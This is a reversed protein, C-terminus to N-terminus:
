VHARGIELPRQREVRPTITILPVAHRAGAERGLKCAVALLRQDLDMGVVARPEAQGIAAERADLGRLAVAEIADGEVRALAGALQEHRDVPRIARRAAAAGPQERAGEDVGWRALRTELAGGCRDGGDLVSSCVDLSWDSIRM